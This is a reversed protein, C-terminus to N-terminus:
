MQEPGIYIGHEIAEPMAIDDLQNSKVISPLHESSLGSAVLLRQSSRNDSILPLEIDLEQLLESPIYNTYYRSNVFSHKSWDLALNYKFYHRGGGIIFTKLEGKWLPLHLPIKNAAIMLTKSFINQGLIKTQFNLRETETLDKLCNKSIEVGFREATSGYIIIKREGDDNRHEFCATDITMGGFDSILYTGQPANASDFYSTVAAVFEPVINYDFSVSGGLTANKLAKIIIAETISNNNEFLILAAKCCNNFVDNKHENKMTASPYGFNFSLRISEELQTKKESLFWGVSQRAMLALYAILHITEQCTYAFEQSSKESTVIFSLKLDTITKYGKVPLLSYEGEQSRWLITKWYYPHEEAQLSSITPVAVRDLNQYAFNFVLKTCTSGLDFGLVIEQPHASLNDRAKIRERSVSLRHDLHQIDSSSSDLQNVETINRKFHNLYQNVELERSDNFEKNSNINKFDQKSLTKLVVETTKNVPALKSFHKSNKKSIKLNEVQKSAITKDPLKEAKLISEKTQGINNSNLKKFFNSLKDKFIGM